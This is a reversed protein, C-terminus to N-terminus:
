DDLGDDDEGMDMNILIAKRLLAKEKKLSKKLGAVSEELLRIRGELDASVNGDVYVQSSPAIPQGISASSVEKPSVQPNEKEIEDVVATVVVHDITHQEELFAYLLLRDCFTNVKRPVGKTFEYIETFASDTFEPDGKWDVLELRHCIYDKTEAEDLPGLHYAAIVRQKLQELGDSQLTARFEEQGLLFSQLLARGGMEFNSLMRLEEISRVPLNQVEDVLLLVRKGDKVESKFYSELNRLLTSKPIGECALGFADAVMRVLDDAEIQTSVLQAAVIDQGKLSNFLTRVLMTKGTGVDGTIIIFGEGQNIGYRLYAMARKHGHSNFFFKPDPNLQFPKASFHYFSEYM